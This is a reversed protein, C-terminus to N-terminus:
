DLGQGDRFSLNAFLWLKRLAVRADLGQIHGHGAGM